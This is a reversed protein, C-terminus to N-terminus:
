VKEVKVKSIRHNDVEEVTLRFNRYEISEGEGPIRGLNKLVLGSITDYDEDHLQMGLVSNLEDTEARGKVIWTNKSVKRINPDLKDTEDMIEGVIEELVDEMTVLGRVSGHEDVVIAMHEKRKQFNRLLSSIKKSDPVFYPKYMVKSVPVTKGSNVSKIVDKIYVIGVINQRSKEYVPLRSFSSRLMAKLVAPLPANSSVIAMDAEPILIEGVDLNDFEFVNTLLTQEISKISGEEEASKILTIIEEETIAKEKLSLGLIKFLKTIFANLINLIPTLVISLYYIPAAVLQSIFENNKAAISKPTIEGFVLILITMIGTAISVAYDQTYRLMVATALASAGINVVNNGILITSLMREPSDKLRKIYSAGFKRKALMNRVKFKPLSVLAIEAGSFFGSLLILIVLIFIDLGLSM